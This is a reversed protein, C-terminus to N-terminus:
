NGTMLVSVRFALVGQEFLQHGFAGSLAQREQHGSMTGCRVVGLVGDSQLVEGALGFLPQQLKAAFPLHSGPQLPELGNLLLISWWCLQSPRPMKM